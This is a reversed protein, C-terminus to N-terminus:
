GRPGRIAARLASAFAILQETTGHRSIHVMASGIDHTRYGRRALYNLVEDVDIADINGAGRDPRGRPLRRDAPTVPREQTGPVTYRLPGQNAQTETVPDTEYFSLQQETNKGDAHRVPNDVPGPRRSPWQTEPLAQLRLRLRVLFTPGFDSHMWAWRTDRKEATETNEVIELTGLGALAPISAALGVTDLQTRPPTWHLLDPYSFRQTPKGQAIEALRVAEGSLYDTDLVPCPDPATDSAGILAAAMTAITDTDTGLARAALRSVGAPDAPAATALALAATVTTIANGRKDPNRLELTSVLQDYAETATDSLKGDPGGLGPTSQAALLMAQRCEDTTQRWAESFSVGARSEWTPRWLTGLETHGDVLKVAQESLDLLEPWRETPPVQGEQLVAGLSLAHLVAGVLARPHGHTTVGNVLVDLVHQGLGAPSPAAWVHPHIRMAVGNGGADLCGDYFNAFWPPPGSKAMHAAAAKSARGGGLAYAPWVPLEVRAFAEADFGKGHVARATALRLQTDDSYCGAPMTMDAGFRGGVRRTWKVPEALPRGRLRRRLGTDDTLESIFGLADAWAAWLMSNVTRRVRDPPAPKTV